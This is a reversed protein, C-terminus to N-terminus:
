TGSSTQRKQPTYVPLSKPMITLGFREKFTGLNVGRGYVGHSYTVVADPSEAEGQGDGKAVKRDQDWFHPNKIRKGKYDELLKQYLHSAFQRTREFILPRFEGSLVPALIKDLKDYLGILVIKDM